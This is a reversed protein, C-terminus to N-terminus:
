TAVTLKTANNFSSVAYTLKDVGDPIPNACKGCKPFIIEADFEVEGVYRGCKACKIVKTDYINM